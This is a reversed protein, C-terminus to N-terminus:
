SPIKAVTEEEPASLLKVKNREDLAALIEMLHVVFDSYSWGLQKSRFRLTEIKRETSTNLKSRNRTKQQSLHLKSTKSYIESSSEAKYNRVRM